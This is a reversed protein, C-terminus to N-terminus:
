WGMRKKDSSSVTTSLSKEALHRMIPDLKFAGESLDFYNYRQISLSEIIKRKETIIVNIYYM